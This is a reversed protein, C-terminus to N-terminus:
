PGLEGELRRFIEIIKDYLRVVTEDNLPGRNRERLRTLIVHERSPVHIPLGQAMKVKGVLLVLRARENLLDLIQDDILDIHARLEELSPLERQWGDEKASPSKQQDM